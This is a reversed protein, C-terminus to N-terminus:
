SDGSALAHVRRVQVIYRALHMWDQLLGKLLVCGNRQGERLVCFKRDDGPLVRSFGAARCHCVPQM